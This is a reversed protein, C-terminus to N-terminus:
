DTAVAPLMLTLKTGRGPTSEITVRGNSQRAFGFVMSLGLGTGKGIAKTTFFPDFVRKIIDSSIGDGTDKIDINIYDGSALEEIPRSSDNDLRFNQCRITFEGGSPMADRSNVALNLLVNELQAPDISIMKLNPECKLNLGIDTGLTHRLLSRLSEILKGAHVTEAQLPQRRAFALLRRTLEAGGKTARQINGLFPNEGGDETSLSEELLEANGMIVSLLNNFDHAIGGTLEGVAEMKQAHRLHEEAIKKETIDFVTLLRGPQGRWGVNKSYTQFIRIDGSKTIGRMEQMGQELKQRYASRVDQDEPAVFEIDRMGIVEDCLYGFARSFADNAFVVIGDVTIGIGQLSGDVLDKFRQETEKLAAEADVVETVDTTTGRYGLFLGMADFLPIGSISLVKKGVNPTDMSYIFNRFPRHAQLTNYHDQWVPDDLSAGVADWRTKGIFRGKTVGWSASNLNNIGTYQLNADMEWQSATSMDVWDRLRTEAIQRSSRELLNTISQCVISLCAIEESTWIRPEAFHSAIVSGMFQDDQHITGDMLAVINLPVLFRDRISDVLPDTRTDEVAFVHRRKLAELYDARAAMDTLTGSEFTQDKRNYAVTCNVMTSNELMLWISIRDVDLLQAGIKATERLAVDLGENRFVPSSILRTILEISGGKSDGKNDTM